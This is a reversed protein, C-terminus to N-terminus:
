SRAKLPNPAYRPVRRAYAPYEDPFARELVGEEWRIRLLECIVFYLV